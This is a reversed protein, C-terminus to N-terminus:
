DAPYYFELITIPDKRTTNPPASGNRYVYFISVGLADEGPVPSGTPSYQHNRTFIVSPPLAISAPLADPTPVRIRFPVQRQAEGMSMPFRGERNVPQTGAVGGLLMVALWVRRM